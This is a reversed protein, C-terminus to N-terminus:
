RRGFADIARMIAQGMAASGTHGADDVIELRAEPWVKALEWATTLPSGLDLRGHVLVGPIGALAGAEQLLQWETLWAAHAFYHACIRVMALMATDSKAGYQGPSGLNEHAIVADEWACWQRAARMRVDPDPHRLLRDYAVVLDGDRDEPPVGDRFIEWEAPLLRALGHYLWDIEELRTTTVAVLVIADVRRPFREAYALTLTAGWSGGYMLWRDVGLHERLREMDALLHDTTNCALDVDHGSAHPRSEGCGRQDFLIIRYVDPDFTRRSGRTGGGGPGGHVVVAPKGEPNGSTEWYIENGDGVDLLGSDYPEIPPFGLAPPTEATERTTAM